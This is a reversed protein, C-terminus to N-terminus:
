RISTLREEVVNWLEQPIDLASNTALEDIRDPSSVGVVTSSIRPDRTSFQLALAALPVGFGGCAEHLWQVTATVAADPVRYQYRPSAALPKALMGSAYPAANVFAMGAAVVDTILSDASRDLLTFRNHNLIVDVRGTDVYRRLEQIDGGAVGIVDILGETKLDLMVDLAGGQKAIQAFQFREPDHLYFVPLREVGLRQISEDFSARVRLGNLDRSGPKPDAKSALVIDQVLPGAERLAAGIRRESEGDGYENSTDLFRFGCAFARRLTAVARGAGVDYGYISPMGGLPSTRVCISPVLPGGASLTSLRV